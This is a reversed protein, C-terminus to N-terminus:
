WKLTLHQDHSHGGLEGGRDEGALSGQGGACPVLRGPPDLRADEGQEVVFAAAPCPLLGIQGRQEGLQSPEHHLAALPEARGEAEPTGDTGAGIGEIRAHDIGPRSEFQEVGEGQDM